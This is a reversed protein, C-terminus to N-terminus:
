VHWDLGHIRASIPRVTLKGRPERRMAGPPFSVALHTGPAPTAKRGDFHLLDNPTCSLVSCLAEIIDLRIQLFQGHVMRSLQSRSLHIGHKELETGLHTIYRIRRKRMLQALQWCRM